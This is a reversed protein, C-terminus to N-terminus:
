ENSILGRELLTVLKQYVGDELIYINSDHGELVANEEMRALHWTIAQPTVECEDVIEKIPITAKNENEVFRTLITKEIPRLWAAVVQQAISDLLKDKVFYRTYRGDRMSTILDFKKLIYVHYQVVGIEKELQRCIDRFHIGPQEEILAFIQERTTLEGDLSDGIKLNNESDTIRTFSAAIVFPVMTSSSVSIGMASQSVQVKPPRISLFIPVIAACLVLVLLARLTRTKFM